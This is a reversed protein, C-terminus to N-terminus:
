NGQRYSPSSLLPVLRVSKCHSNHILCKPGLVYKANLTLMLVAAWHLGDVFEQVGFPEDTLVSSFVWPDQLEWDCLM